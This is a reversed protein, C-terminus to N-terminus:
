KVPRPTSKHGEPFPLEYLDLQGVTLGEGMVVGPRPIGDWPAEGERPRTAYYETKQQESWLRIVEDAKAKYHTEVWDSRNSVDALLEAAHVRSSPRDVNGCWQLIANWFESMNRLTEAPFYAFDRPIVAPCLGTLRLLQPLIEGNKLELYDFTRYTGLDEGADIAELTETAIEVWLRLCDQGSLETGDYGPSM